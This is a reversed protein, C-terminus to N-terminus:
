NGSYLFCLFTYVNQLFLKFITNKDKHLKLPEIVVNSPGGWIKINYLLRSHILVFYLILLLYECMSIRLFYYKRINKRLEIQLKRSHEKWSFKYYIVIGLHKIHNIQDIKACNCNVNVRCWQDVHFKLVHEFSSGRFDFNIFKTKGANVLINKHSCRKWVLRLDNNMSDWVSYIRMIFQQM